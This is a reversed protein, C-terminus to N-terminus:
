RGIIVRFRAAKGGLDDENFEQSIGGLGIIDSVHSYHFDVSAGVWRFFRFEAGGAFVFGNKKIEVNEEATSFQSTEEYKFSGLGGGAYPIVRPWRRMRLRYGGIVEIPTIMATLPIGLRYDTDDSRFLREGTKKFQSASIEVFVNRNLVVEVGGGRFPGASEGFVSKFTDKAAFQQQSIEVFARPAFAPYPPLPPPPTRPRPQAVLPSALGLTLLCAVAISRM